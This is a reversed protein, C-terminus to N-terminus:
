CSLKLCYYLSMLTSDKNKMKYGILIIKIIPNQPKPTKPNQYTNNKSKSALNQTSNVTNQIKSNEM